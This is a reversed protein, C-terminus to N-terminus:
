KSDKREPKSTKNTAIKRRKVSGDSAWFQVESAGDIKVTEFAARQKDAPVETGSVLRTKGDVTATTIATRM